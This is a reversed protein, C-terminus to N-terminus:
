AKTNEKLKNFQYTPKEWWLDFNDVVAAKVNLYSELIQEPLSTHTKGCVACPVAMGKKIIPIANEIPAQLKTVVEHRIKQILNRTEIVSLDDSELEFILLEFTNLVEKIQNLKPDTDLKHHSNFVYNKLNQLETALAEVGHQIISGTNRFNKQQYTTSFSLIDERLAHITERYYDIKKKQDQEIRNEKLQINIIENAKVQEVLALYVLISGMIGSIPSTIGGITDGIQGTNLFDIGLISFSTIVTPAFLILLVGAFLAILARKQSKPLKKFIM